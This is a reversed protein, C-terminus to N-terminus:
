TVTLSPPNKTAITSDNM